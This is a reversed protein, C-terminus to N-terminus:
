ANKLLSSLLEIGVFESHDQLEIGKYINLFRSVNLRSVNLKLKAEPINKFKFSQMTRLALIYIISILLV